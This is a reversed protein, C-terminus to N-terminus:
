RRGKGERHKRGSNDPPPVSAKRRAEEVSVIIFRDAGDAEATVVDLGADADGRLDARITEGRADVKRGVAADFYGEISLRALQHKPDFFSWPVVANVKAQGNVLAGRLTVRGSLKSAAIARAAFDPMKDAEGIIQFRGDPAPEILSAHIVDAGDRFGAVAVWQGPALDAKDALDSVDVTQGLVIIQDADSVVSDIPGIVEHEIGLSVAKLQSGNEVAIARVVQGVRLPQLVTDDVDSRATQSPDIQLELGNVFISGFATLLGFVGTGGIGQDKPGELSPSAGFWLVGLLACTRLVRSLPLSRM